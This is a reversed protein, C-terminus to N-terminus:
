ILRVVRPGWHLRGRIGGVGPVAGGDQRDALAPDHGDAAVALDRDALGDDLGIGALHAPERVAVDDAAERARGGVGERQELPQFGLELLIGALEHAGRDLEGLVPAGVAIQAPEFGHHDDGVLLHRQHQGAGAVHELGLGAHHPDPRAAVIREGGGARQDVGIHVRLRDDLLRHRDRGIDADVGVAVHRDLSQLCSRIAGGGDHGRKDRADVDEKRRYSLCSTSPRSVPSRLSATRRVAIGPWSLIQSMVSKEGRSITESSSRKMTPWPSALRATAIASRLRQRRRRSSSLSRSSTIGFFMRIIPGVPTPLVSIARRSALSAPAGNMLTSAVLNVSTPYTPRSTSCITRSRTSTAIVCVRSRFRLSTRARAWSAASSRTSSASTPALELAAVRSENRLFSREPSSLSLSISISVWDEPPIGINSIGPMGPACIPAIEIPSMKPLIPPRVLVRRRVTSSEWSSRTLSSDSLSNSLSWSTCSDILATSFLPMTNRSSISLIQTRSPRLPPSTERSPTCRSRNGSISPVVTEVLCPATLVSWMRNM